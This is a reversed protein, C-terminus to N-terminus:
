VLGRLREAFDIPHRIGEARMLPRIRAAVEPPVPGYAREWELRVDHVHNNEQLLDDVDFLLAAKGRNCTECATVLNDEGDWGGESRPIVHDVELRAEPASAGCYVCRFGDRLLIVFRTKPRVAM